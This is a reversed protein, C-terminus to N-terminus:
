NNNETVFCLYAYRIFDDNVPKVSHWINFKTFDLAVFKGRIPEVEEQNDLILEGGSDKKYTSPDSLYIFFGCIRGPNDGDQHNSIFDGKEYMTWSGLMQLNKVTYNGEPYVVNMFKVMASEIQYRVGRDDFEEEIGWWSLDHWQQWVEINNKRVFEKRDQIQDPPIYHSLEGYGLLTQRYSHIRTGLNKKINEICFDFDFNKDLIEYVDGIYYGREEISKKWREM